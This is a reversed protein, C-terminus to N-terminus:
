ANPTTEKTTVGHFKDSEFKGNEDYTPTPTTNTRDAYTPTEFLNMMEIVFVPSLYGEIIGTQANWTGTEYLAFDPAYVRMPDNDPIRQQLTRMALGATEAFFPTTYAEAKLDRIEFAKM